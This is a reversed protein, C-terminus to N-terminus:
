ATPRHHRRIYILLKTAGSLALLLGVMATMIAIWQLGILAALAVFGVYAAVMLAVMTVMSIKPRPSLEIPLDDDHLRLLVFDQHTVQFPPPPSVYGTRPFTVRRKLFLIAGRDLCLAALAALNFYLTSHPGRGVLFIVGAWCMLQLGRVLRPIGDVNWYSRARSQVEEFSPPSIPM